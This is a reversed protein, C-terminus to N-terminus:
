YTACSVILITRDCVRGRQLDYFTVVTMADIVSGFFTGMEHQVYESLIDV